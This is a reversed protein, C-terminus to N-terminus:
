KSLVIVFAMALTSPLFGFTGVKILNALISLIWFIYLYMCVYVTSALLLM